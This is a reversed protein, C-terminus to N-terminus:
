QNQAVGAGGGLVVSPPKRRWKSRIRTLLAPALEYVALGALIMLSGQRLPPSVSEGALWVGLLMALVPTILPVLGVVEFPLKRLVYYFAMFGLLSGVTALYVIAGTGADASLEPLRGDVLYWCLLLGPLAFTMAGLSQELPDIASTDLKKLLINSISFLLTSVVMLLIGLYRSDGAGFQSASIVLLGSLSIILGLIRLPSFPNQKLIFISLVGMILPATAFMVSVMGSSIYTTAWYVLPMNPFISVSAVAYAKWHRRKLGSGHSVLAVIVCALTSAIVFRMSVAAWPTYGASSIKIALPTTAWVAIVVLYALAAGM